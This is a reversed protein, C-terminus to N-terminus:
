LESLTTSIQNNLYCYSERYSTEELMQFMPLYVVVTEKKQKAIKEASCDGMERLNILRDVMKLLVIENHNKM